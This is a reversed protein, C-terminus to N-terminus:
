SADTGGRNYLRFMFWNFIKPNKILKRAVNIKNSTKINLSLIMAGIWFDNKKEKIADFLLQCNVVNEM